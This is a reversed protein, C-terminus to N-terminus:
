PRSARQAGLLRVRDGAAYSAGLRARPQPAFPCAQLRLSGSPFHATTGAETASTRTGDILAVTDAGLDHPGAGTGKDTYAVACGQKLGWEGTSIAGYIGRSGSSTATVICAKRPNFTSPIQVMLVVNRRGDGDDSFALVETGAIKGDGAVTGDAAVNPGYFVGYGGATTMDLLARHSNYIAARRLEAATPHLPDAYAPLLGALGMAGLGATLLDDSDGDYDARRVERVYAPKRNFLGTPGFLDPRDHAAREDAVSATALRITEADIVAGSADTIEQGPVGTGSNASPTGPARASPEGTAGSGNCGAVLLTAVIVAGPLSLKSGSGAGM